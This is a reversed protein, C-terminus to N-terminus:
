PSGGKNRNGKGDGFLDYYFLYQQIVGEYGSYREFPFGDPYHREFIRRIHTDVPFAELHHLGFLCICDAVKKGVGSCRMLAECAEPCSLERIKELCVQGSVVQEATQKVYRARYGLNCGRLDEESAAALREPEPFTYYIKASSGAPCCREEGYNVCLLDIIKRIRRINNQQTVLFTILMEWLDQRLIRIGKGSQSAAKLYSDRRDVSDLFVKYDTDLDFYTKWFNDFEEEKCWFILSDDKQELELYRHGAIVAFREGDLQEMRFCQGSGAIQAIDFEEPRDTIM